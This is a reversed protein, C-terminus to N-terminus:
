FQGFVRLDASFGLFRGFFRFDALFGLIPQLGMFDASFSFNALYTQLFPSTPFSQLILRESKNINTTVKCLFTLHIGSSFFVAYNGTYILL